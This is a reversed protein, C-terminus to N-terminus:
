VDLRVRLLISDDPTKKIPESLKAVALLEEDVSYLGVTTIYTVPSDSQTNKVVIQSDKIYTPNASYNFENHNARCFYITSNLETTNHFTLSTIRKRILDAMETFTKTTFLQALTVAPSQPLAFNTAFQLHGKKNDDLNGAEAKSATYKAFLSTSIAILGAQYFVYGVEKNPNLSAGGTVKLVGYDGTPSDIYYSTASDVDTLTLNNTSGAEAINIVLSVTGRKLEDKGLLRSISLFILNNYKLNDTKDAFSKIASSSDYGLVIQSISNYTNIRKSVDTIPTTPYAASMETSIGYSMDFYPNSSALTPVGDYVSQFMNNAYVDTNVTRKVNADLAIVNGPLTISEYLPARTTTVDDTALRKFTSAM